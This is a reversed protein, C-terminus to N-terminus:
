RDPFDLVRFESDLRWTETGSPAETQVVYTGREESVSDVDVPGVEGLADLNPLSSLGRECASFDLRSADLDEGTINEVFDTLGEPTLRECIRAADEQAFADILDNLANEARVHETSQPGEFGMDEATEGVDCGALVAVLALVLLYKM